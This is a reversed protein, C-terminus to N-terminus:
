SSLWRERWLEWMLLAWLRHQHNGMGSMHQHLVDNVVAPDLRGERQLHVPSLYDAILEKLDTRLWHALPVGFGMKPREVLEHPLYRMLLKRLLYKGTGNQFKFHDPLQTTFSVVRHDLLPVRIELSAAMSARDVKTLMADPLYTQQDVYMLRYFSKLDNTNKFISEFASDPVITGTLRQIDMESWICVTLRYLESLETESLQSILKSWKDAFNEVQLRRPLHERLGTYYRHLTDVSLNGLLRKVWRRVGFPIPKMWQALGDTMWYRLYGGFQEDGGDGSLAVTVESRTLRSVLFTPIASSDAFPEDYIDPLTPVVKLADQSSVYLETHNTALHEAVRKAWPAENYGQEGFGISFTRVPLRNVKQMLAVVISSDVGGSLLAGLPVDSVLRDTVAQTLVADLQSLAEKESCQNSVEM